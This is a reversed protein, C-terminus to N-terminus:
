ECLRAVCRASHCGLDLHLHDHHLANAEPGLVTTFRTCAADHAFKVIRSGDEETGHWGKEVTVTRGDELKFGVVDLADAFAHFSLNGGSANNVNRCMYSTGVIVSEIGTNDHSRLYGEVDAVWAPLVTAMNCDLTTEGTFPIMRGNALVGTVSLPSQEGCPPESIPPLPKAEVLGAIVAPCTTQYIRPKKPEEKPPLTGEAPPAGGEAVEPVTEAPVDVAPQEASKEPRKRPLPVLPKEEEAAPATDSAAPTTETAAPREHPLPATEQGLAPATVVLFLFAALLRM